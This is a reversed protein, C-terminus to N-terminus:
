EKVLIEFIPILYRQNQIYREKLGWIVNQYNGSKNIQFQNLFSGSRNKRKNRKTYLVCSNISISRDELDFSSVIKRHSVGTATPDICSIIKFDSM